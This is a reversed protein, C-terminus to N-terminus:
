IKEVALEAVRLMKFILWTLLIVTSALAIIGLLINNVSANTVVLGLDYTNLVSVNKEFLVTFSNLALQVVTICLIISSTMKVFLLPIVELLMCVLIPLVFSAVSIIPISWSNIVNIEAYSMIGFRISVVENGTILAALAHGFEHLAFQGVLGVLTAVLFKLWFVIKRM